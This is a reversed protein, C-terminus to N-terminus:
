RLAVNSCRCLALLNASDALAHPPHLKRAPMNNTLQPGSARAASRVELADLERAAADRAVSKTLRSKCDETAEKYKYGLSRLAGMGCKPTGVVISLITNVGSTSRLSVEVRQRERLGEMRPPPAGDVGTLAGEGGGAAHVAARLPAPNHRPQSARSAPLVASGRALRARAAM